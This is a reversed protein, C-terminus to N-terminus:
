SIESKCWPSLAFSQPSPTRSTLCDPEVSDAASKTKRLKRSGRASMLNTLFFDVPFCNQLDYVKVPFTHKAFNAFWCFFSASISEPSRRLNLSKVRDTSLTPLVLWPAMKVKRWFKGFCLRGQLHGYSIHFLCKMFLLPTSPPPLSIEAIFCCTITGLLFRCNPSKEAFPPPDM